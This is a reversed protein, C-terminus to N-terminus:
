NNKINTNLVCRFNDNKFSSYGPFPVLSMGAEFGNPFDQYSSNPLSKTRMFVMSAIEARGGVTGRKVKETGNEPGAPNKKPSIKYYDKDFWDQVWEHTNESMGYLGVPNAPFNGVDPLPPQGGETWDNPFNRPREIKGNDTSFLVRKGGSRAAYEWQAETPLDFPLRTVTALWLCYDKAGHWSVGAPRKPARHRAGIEDLDIRAKGTADTFVDFDEYTVKYAMMSFGDLTVKHLPKSHMEMDYPLGTKGGWDGMDFTGGKLPRMTRKVKKILAQVRAELSEGPAARDAARADALFLGACLLLSLKATRM